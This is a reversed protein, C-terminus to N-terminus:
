IKVFVAGNVMYVCTCKRKFLPKWFTKVDKRCLHLEGDGFKEELERRSCKSKKAGPIKHLMGIRTVRIMENLVAEVRSPCVHEFFDFSTLYDVSKNPLPIKTADCNFFKINPLENHPFPKIEWDLGYVEEFFNSYERCMEGKGTGIDIISTGNLCKLFELYSQGHCSAGYNKANKDLWEYKKRTLEVPEYM